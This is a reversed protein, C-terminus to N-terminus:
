VPNSQQPPCKKYSLMITFLRMHLVGTTPPIPPMGEGGGGGGGGGGLVIQCFPQGSMSDSPNQCIGFVQTLGGSTLAMIGQKFTIM